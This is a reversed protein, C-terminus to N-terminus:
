WPWKTKLWSPVYKCAIALVTAACAIATAHKVRKWISTQKDQPKSEAKAGIKAQHETFAQPQFEILQDLRAKINKCASSNVLIPHKKQWQDFRKRYLMLEGSYYLALLLNKQESNIEACGEILSVSKALPIATFQPHEAHVAKEFRHIKKSFVQLDTMPNSSASHARSGIFLVGVLLWLKQNM